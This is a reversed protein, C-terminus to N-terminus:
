NSRTNPGCCSWGGVGIRHDCEHDVGRSLDSGYSRNTYCTQVVIAGFSSYGSSTLNGTTITNSNNNEDCYEDDFTDEDKNHHHVGDTADFDIDATEEEETNDSYSGFSLAEEVNSGNEDNININTTPIRAHRCAAITSIETSSRATRDTETQLHQQTELVVFERTDHIFVYSLDGIGIDFLGRGVSLSTPHDRHGSSLHEPRLHPVGIRSRRVWRKIKRVRWM